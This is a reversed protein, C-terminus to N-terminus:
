TPSHSYSGATPCAVSADCRQHWGRKFSTVSLYRGPFGAALDGAPRQAPRETTQTTM